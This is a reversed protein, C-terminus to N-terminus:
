KVTKEWKKKLFYKYIKDPLINEAVFNRTRFFIYKLGEILLNFYFNTNLLNNKIRCLEIRSKFDSSLGGVRMYSFPYNIYHFNAGKLYSELLFKYDSTLKYNIDYKTFYLYWDKKVFCSPFNLIMNNKLNELDIPKRIKKYNQGKLNRIKYMDGYYIDVKDDYNEILKEIANNEYWDDSNIFGVLEGSAMDIGKNMADYIGKDTESVWKMRGDFKSEYGRIIDLTNDNSNGDIIIYEINGYTQNLVSEITDKIYRESNYSVTIISVLINENNKSM